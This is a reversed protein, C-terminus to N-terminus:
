GLPLYTGVPPKQLRGKQRHTHTHPLYYDGASLDEVAAM